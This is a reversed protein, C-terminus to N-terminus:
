KGKWLPKRKELFASIGEQADESNLLLKLLAGEYTIGYSISTELATNVAKKIFKTAISSKSAIEKAMVVAEEMLRESPCVKNVINLNFAEDASIIRGLMVMEKAKKVGVIRTLRQTGGWGPMIGLNVETQGFRAQDSAIIMDCAMALEFGGGLALGNVAAIVPKDLNEISNFVERGFQLFGHVEIMSDKKFEAVDAGVSFARPGYGTIIVVRVNGDSEADSLANKIEQLTEKNLANLVQPRNITIIAYEEKKEYIINKFTLEM